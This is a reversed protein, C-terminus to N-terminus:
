IRKRVVTKGVMRNHHGKLGVKDKKKGTVRFRSPALGPKNRCQTLIPGCIEVPIHGLPDKGLQGSQCGDVRMVQLDVVVTAGFVLHTGPEARAEVVPLLGIAVDATAHLSGNDTMQAPHLSQEKDAGVARIEGGVDHLFGKGGQGGM